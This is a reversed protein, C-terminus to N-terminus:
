WDPAYPNTQDGGPVPNVARIATVMEPCRANQTVPTSVGADTARPQHFPSVERNPIATGYRRVPSSADPVVDDVHPKHSPGAARATRARWNASLIGFRVSTIILTARAVRSFAATNAAM